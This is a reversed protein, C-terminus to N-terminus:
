RKLRYFKSAGDSQEIIFINTGSVLPQSIVNSWPYNTSLIPKSQLVYNTLLSSWSIQWLPPFYAQISLRPLPQVLTGVLNTNNATLPDPLDSSVSIVNTVLGIINPVVTLTVTAAEGIALSGLNGSVLNGNAGITCKSVTASQYSLSAPLNDRFIVNTADFPGANTVTTTYVLNSGQLVPDPADTTSAVLDSAVDVTFSAVSSGAGAPGVVMIPGTFCNPPVSIQIKGNDLVTPSAANVGNFLVASAGVFNTGSLTVLTGPVGHAPSFSNVV